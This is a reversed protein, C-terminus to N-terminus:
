SLVAARMCMCVAAQYHVWSDLPSNPQVVTSVSLYMIVVAKTWSSVTGNNIWTLQTVKNLM